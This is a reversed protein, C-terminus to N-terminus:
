YSKPCETKFRYFKNTINKKIELYNYIMGNFILSINKHSFPQNAKNSLDVIKLRNHGFILNSNIKKISNNDPGRHTQEKVLNYINNFESNNKGFIASIGCM